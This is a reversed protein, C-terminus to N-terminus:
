PRSPPHFVGAAMSTGIGMGNALLKLSTADDLDDLRLAYGKLHRDKIELARPSGLSVRVTPPAGMATLKRRVDGSFAEPEIIDRLEPDDDPVPMPHSFEAIQERAREELAGRRAAEEDAVRKIVQRFMWDLQDALELPAVDFHM